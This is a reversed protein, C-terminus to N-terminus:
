VRLRSAIDHLEMKRTADATIAENATLHGEAVLGEITKSMNKLQHLRTLEDPLQREVDTTLTKIIAIRGM